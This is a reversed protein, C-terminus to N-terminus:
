FFAKDRIERDASAVHRKDYVIIASIINSVNCLGVKVLEQKYARRGSEDGIKAPEVGRPRAPRRCAKQTSSRANRRLRQLLLLLPPPRKIMMIIRRVRRKKSQTVSFLLRINKSAVTPAGYIFRRFFNNPKCDVRFIDIPGFSYSAAHITSSHRLRKLNSSEVNVRPSFQFRREVRGISRRRTAAWAVFMQINRRM